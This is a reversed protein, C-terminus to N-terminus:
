RSEKGAGELDDRRASGRVTSSIKLLDEDPECDDVAAEGVVDGGGLSFDGVPVCSGASVNGPHPFM